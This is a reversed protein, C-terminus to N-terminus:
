KLKTGVHSLYGKVDRGKVNIFVNPDAIRFAVLDRVVWEKECNRLEGGEILLGYATGGSYININCFMPYPDDPELYVANISGITGLQYTNQSVSVSPETSSEGGSLLNAHKDARNCGLQAIVLLLFLSAIRHVIPARRRM